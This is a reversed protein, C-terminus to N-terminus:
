KEIQSDIRSEIVAVREHLSDQKKAMDRIADTLSKLASSTDARETSFKAVLQIILWLGAFALGTGTLIDSWTWAPSTTAAVTAGTGSAAMGVAAAAKIVSDYLM